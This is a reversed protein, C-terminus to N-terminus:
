INEGTSIAMFQPIWWKESGFIIDLQTSAEMFM